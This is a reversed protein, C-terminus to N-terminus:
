GPKLAHPLMLFTPQEPGIPRTRYYPSTATLRSDPLDNLEGIAQSLQQHPDDLNSGLGIYSIIASM